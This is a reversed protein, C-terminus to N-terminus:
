FRHLAQNCIPFTHACYGELILVLSRLMKSENMTDTDPLAAIYLPHSPIRFLAILNVNPNGLLADTQAFSPLNHWRGTLVSNEKLNLFTDLKVSLNNLRRLLVQRQPLLTPCEHLWHTITDPAGTTCRRCAAHTLNYHMTALPGLQLRMSLVRRATKHTKHFPPDTVPAYTINLYSAVVHSRTSALELRLRTKLM